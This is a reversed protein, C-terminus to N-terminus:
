AIMGPYARILKERVQDHSEQIVLLQKPQGDGDIHVPHEPKVKCDSQGPEPSVRIVDKANLLLEGHAAFSRELALIARAQVSWFRSEGLPPLQKLQARLQVPRAMLDALSESRPFNFVRWGRPALDLGNTFFIVTGNSEFLFPHSRRPAPLNDPM